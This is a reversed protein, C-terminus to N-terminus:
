HIVLTGDENEEDESIPDEALLSGHFVRAAERANVGDPLCSDPYLGNLKELIGRDECSWEGGTITAKIGGIKITASM